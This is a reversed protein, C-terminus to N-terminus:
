EIKKQKQLDLCQENVWKLLYSIRSSLTVVVDTRELWAMYKENIISNIPYPLKDYFMALNTKNHGTKYYYQTFEAIYNKLYRMSWLEINNIKRQREQAKEESNIKTGIFEAEIERCLSRFMAAPTEMIRLTNKGDESLSDYWDAVTGSFNHEIYNLFNSAIWATNLNLVSNM